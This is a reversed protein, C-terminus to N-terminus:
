NPAIEAIQDSPNTGGNHGPSKMNATCTTIVQFLHERTYKGLSLLLATLIWPNGM